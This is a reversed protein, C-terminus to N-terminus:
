LIQGLAERLCARASAATKIEYFWYDKGQRVVVDVSNGDGLALEQFVKRDPFKSVLQRYLATRLKRHHLRVEWEKRATRAISSSAANESGPRSVDFQVPPSDPESEGSGETFKYLELLRDFDDLILAYDIRDIPQLKGLFVFVGEAVLENRIRAPAYNRSREGDKYHWMRMDEYIQSRRRMFDNFLRVKPTLTRVPNELTHSLEFSFAVGHRLERGGHELGINFQLESRGGFHFAWEPAITASRFIDQGTRRRHHLEARVEQLNGIPHVRAKRNLEAAIADLKPM